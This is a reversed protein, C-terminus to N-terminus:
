MSLARAGGCAMERRYDDCVYDGFIDFRWLWGMHQKHHVGINLANMEEIDKQVALRGMICTSSKPIM